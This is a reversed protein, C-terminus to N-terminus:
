HHAAPHRPASPHPAAMVTLPASISAHNGALDVAGLTVTYAGARPSGPWTFTHGGQALLASTVYPTQGGGTVTLTVTSIKSLTFGVNAANGVQPRGPAPTFVLM